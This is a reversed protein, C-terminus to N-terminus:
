FITVVEKKKFMWLRVWFVVRLAVQSKPGIYVQKFFILRQNLIEVFSGCQQTGTGMSYWQIRLRVFWCLPMYLNLFFGLTLIPRFHARKFNKDLILVYMLLIELQIRKYLYLFCRSTLLSFLLHKSFDNRNLVVKPCGLFCM